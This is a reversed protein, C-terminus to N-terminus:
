KISTLRTLVRAIDRKIKVLSKYNKTEGMRIKMRLEEAEHRFDKLDKSLENETKNLLEKFKM